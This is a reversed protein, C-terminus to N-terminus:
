KIRFVLYREPPVAAVEWPLPGWRSSYFGAGVERSMSIAFFQAYKTEEFSAIRPAAPKRSVNTNNVPVILVDGPVLGHQESDLPKARWQQMYYQFGWHGEFWVTGPKNRFRQQFQKAATRATNALQYDGTAILLSVFASLLVPSWTAAGFAKPAAILGPVRLRRILLIMVAPAMPLFTRASITWNMMAAFIFTGFVWLFLLLSDATKYQLVDTLALVLIGIGITVFLAGEFTPSLALGAGFHFLLVFVIFIVTGALLVQFNPKWGNALGAHVESPGRGVPLIGIKWDSRVRCATLASRSCIRCRGTITSKCGAHETEHSSPRM